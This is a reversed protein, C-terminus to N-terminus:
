ATAKIAQAFERPADPRYARACHEPCYPRGIAAPEGCFRFGPERPDGFPWQCRDSPPASPMARGGDSNRRGTELKRKSPTAWGLRTALGIIANRSRRPYGMAALENAITQATHEKDHYHARVFEIEADTWREVSVAAVEAM